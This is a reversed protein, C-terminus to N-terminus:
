IPKLQKFIGKLKDILISEKVERCSIRLTYNGYFITIIGNIINHNSIDSVEKLLQQYISIPLVLEMEMERNGIVADNASLHSIFFRISDYIPHQHEM